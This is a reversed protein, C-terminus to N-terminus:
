VVNQMESLVMLVTRWLCKSCLHNNTIFLNVDFQSTGKFDHLM